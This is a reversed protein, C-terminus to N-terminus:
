LRMDFKDIVQQVMPYPQKGKKISRYLKKAAKKQETTWYLEILHAAVEDDPLESYASELHTQADEFKGLKFYVWGLSDRIAADQPALKIAREIFSYAEEYRTTNITLMYGLANLASANNPEKEIVWRLDSEAAGMDGLKEAVYSREMRLESVTPLEAIAQNLTDLAAELDENDRHFGSEFAWFMSAQQPIQQRLMALYQMAASSDEQLRFVELILQTASNFYTGIQVQKLQALSEDYNKEEFAIRGLNFHVFDKRRHMQLLQSLSSKAAEYDANESATLAHAMLLKVDRPYQDILTKFEAQSRVSDFKNLTRAYDTLLKKNDPNEEIAAKLIKAAEQPRDLQNLLGAELEALQESDDTINKLEAVQNLARESEGITKLLIAYTFRLSHNNHPENNLTGLETLLAPLSDNALKGHRLVSFNGTQNKYFQRKLVAIADLPRNLRVLLDSLNESALPNEPELSYWLEAMSLAKEQDNAYRSLQAARQAIRADQTVNAERNYLTSATAIDQEYVSLEGVLIRLLSQASFPREPISPPVSVPEAPAKNDTEELKIATKQEGLTTDTSPDANGLSPWNVTACGNLLTALAVTKVLMSLPTKSGFSARAPTKRM